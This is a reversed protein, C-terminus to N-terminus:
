AGPLQVCFFLIPGPESVKRVFLRGCTIGKIDLLNSVNSIYPEVYEYLENEKHFLLFTSDKAPTQKESKSCM